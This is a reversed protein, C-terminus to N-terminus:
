PDQYFIRLRTFRPEAASITVPLRARLWGPQIPELMLPSDDVTWQKLDGSTEVQYTLGHPPSAARM